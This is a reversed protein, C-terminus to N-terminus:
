TLAAAIRRVGEELVADAAAFSLRVFRDDGFAAGPVLAVGARELLDQCFAVSGSRGPKYYGDTRVFLFFAGEPQLAPLGPLRTRILELVRDRRARFVEVMRRIEREPETGGGYAALAAYQAPTSANSTIHSKLAAMRNALEPTSVSFGLRWGTMAFTKSAGDVVVLRRRLEPPLDLASPAREATFCIRSYIEDSILWLDREHSWRAIEELEPASLVAGTPNGPSNLILGRAGAAAAAELASLTPKFGNEPACPVLVPQARALGVIEPFSTWYPAPVLVRDGPGFLCFCANFLAQKAGATIVVQAADIDADAHRSLEAAIARRLAPVGAPPTYRTRGARLAAIGAEVIFAPTDFDPEGPSLDVIDRGQARLEAALAGVALTASPTLHRINDSFHV